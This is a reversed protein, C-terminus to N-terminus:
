GGRVQLGCRLVAVDSKVKDGRQMMREQGVARLTNELEPLIHIELEWLKQSTDFGLYFLIKPLVSLIIPSLLWGLVTIAWGVAAVDWSTAM